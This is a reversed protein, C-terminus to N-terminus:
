FLWSDKLIHLALKSKTNKNKRGRGKEAEQGRNRESDELCCCGEGSKDQERKSKCRHQRQDKALKHQIKSDMVCAMDCQLLSFLNRLKDLYPISIGKEGAM